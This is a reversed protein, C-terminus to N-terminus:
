CSETINETIYPKQNKHQLKYLVKWTSSPIISDM